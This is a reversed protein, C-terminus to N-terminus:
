SNVIKLPYSNVKNTNVNNIFETKIKNFSNIVTTTVVPKIM